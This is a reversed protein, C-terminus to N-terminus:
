FKSPSNKVELGSPKKLHSISFQWIMPFCDHVIYYFINEGEHIKTWTNAADCWRKFIIVTTNTKFFLNKDDSEIPIFLYITLRANWDMSYERVPVWKM